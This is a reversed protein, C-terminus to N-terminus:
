PSVADGYEKELMDRLTIARPDEPEVPHIWKYVLHRGKADLEEVPTKDFLVYMQYEKEFSFEAVLNDNSVSDEFLYFTLRRVNYSIDDYSQLVKRCFEMSKEAFPEDSPFPAYVTMWGKSYETETDQNITKIISELSEENGVSTLKLENRIDPMNGKKDQNLQSENNPSYSYGQKMMDRTDILTSIFDCYWMDKEDLYIKSIKGGQITCYDALVQGQNIVEGPNFQLIPYEGLFIYIPGNEVEALKSILQYEDLDFSELKSIDIIKKGNNGDRIAVDRTIYSQFSSVRMSLTGDSGILELINDNIHDLTTKIAITDGYEKNKRGLAYPVDLADLRMLLAKRFDVDDGNTMSKKFPTSLLATRTVAAFDDYGCQNKGVVLNEDNPDEWDVLFNIDVKYELNESLSPNKLNYTVLEAIRESTDNEILYYSSGNGVPITTHYYWKSAGEIDQALAVSQWTDYEAKHAKVFDDSLTVTIYSYESSTIGYRKVDLLPIGGKNWVVEELDNRSVPIMHTKDKVDVLCLKIARTIYGRLIDDIKGKAFLDKKLYLDISKDENDIWQYGSDKTFADVRGRLIEVDGLTTSSSRYIKIHYKEALDEQRIGNEDSAGEHTEQQNEQVQSNDVPTMNGRSLVKYLVIGAGTILVCAVGVTLWRQLQKRKPRLESNKEKIGLDEALKEILIGVCDHQGYPYWIVELGLQRLFDIREQLAPLIGKEDKLIPDFPDKRNETEKPLELVAFGTAGACSRLVACTRDSKLGCGLFLPPGKQFVRQLTDPILLSFDPNQPDPGYTQDYREKTLVIHRPDNVTGHLKVLVQENRQIRRRLEDKEFASEPTVVFPTNYLGELCVDFNTTVVPGPFLRPIWKQYAPRKENDIVSPAYTKRLGRELVAPDIKSAAQEYQGKDLLDEIEETFPYGSSKDQLLKGWLPYGAWCSLGAGIVPIVGNDKMQKLLDTYVDFNSDDDSFKYSNMMKRFSDDLKGSSVKITDKSDEENIEHDNLEESSSQSDNKKNDKRVNKSIFWKILQWVGSLVLIGVGSFLWTKNEDVWKLFEAM